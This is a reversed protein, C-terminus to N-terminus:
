NFARRFFAAYPPADPESMCATTCKCDQDCGCTPHHGEGEEASCYESSHRGKYMLVCTDGHPVCQNECNKPLPVDHNHIDGPSWGFCGLGNQIDQRQGSTDICTQITDMSFDFDTCHACSGGIPKCPVMGTSAGADASATPSYAAAIVAPFALLFAKPM